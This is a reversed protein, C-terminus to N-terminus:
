HHAEEKAPEAAHHTTDAPATTATSDAVAAHAGHEEHTAAGHAEEHKGEHGKECKEACEKKCEGEDCCKGHCPNGLSVFCLIVFVTVIGLILPTGFAVSKKESHGNNNHHDHSM